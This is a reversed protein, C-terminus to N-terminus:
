NDPADNALRVIGDKMLNTNFNLLLGLRKDALRLYTLLQKSHVPAIEEVSKIEVIVVGEVLLDLRYGEDFRIGRYTIPVRVQREVALGRERLEYSLLTEYVSELLGPGVGQHVRVAADVITGSIKNLHNAGNM